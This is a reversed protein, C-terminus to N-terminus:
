MELAVVSCAMDFDILKYCRYTVKMETGSEGSDVHRLAVCHTIVFIIFIHYVIYYFQQTLNHSRHNPFTIPYNVTKTYKIMTM